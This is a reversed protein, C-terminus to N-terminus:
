TRVATWVGSCLGSPGRGNWTGSAGTRKFRGSGKATRPGAVAALRVHGSGSVRGSVTVPYFAFFGGTSYVRSGKVGLGIHITGCHGKTTKAVMRWGGDFKAALAPPAFAAAAAAAALAFAFRRHRSM